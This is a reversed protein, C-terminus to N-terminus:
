FRRWFASAFTVTCDNTPDAAQRYDVLAGRLQQGAARFAALSTWLSPFGCVRRRDTDEAMHAFLQREDGILVADLLKRDREEIAPLKDPAMRETDGFFQGIHALDVGNYM